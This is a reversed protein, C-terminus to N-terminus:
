TEEEAFPNKPSRLTIRIPVGSLGGAERLGNVLYRLYDKPLAATRTGFIVFSPPRASVQTIYRLKLRRGDVLPPPHRELAEGFWRNLAATPVRRNWAEYVRWVAPMLKEVGEGTLASLPVVPVSALQALGTELRDRVLRRVEARRGRPILDWKNLAFVLARGEREALAAIAVDQAELPAEADLVLVVVEAERLAAITAGVALKEAAASIRSKKRLGATDVLRVLRGSADRWPLAIADRTIGPEPGTLQREEGLLRNVLTSKGANPRGVVALRLPREAGAMGEEGDSGGEAAPRGLLAAAREHLEGIGEGHEASVPVPEGFGLGFAELVGAEGARGEAKNALLIVPKGLRRLWDAFTRDAETVGARADVVFLVLDATEAARLSGRTMRAALSDPPAEELGATDVLTVDRGGLLADAEKRDRTLGPTPDVLALRRRALRNFLSSKGVNPRGVIVVVPRGRARAEADM